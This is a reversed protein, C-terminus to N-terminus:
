SIAGIAMPALNLLVLFDLSRFIKSLVLEEIKGAIWAARKTRIQQGSKKKIM